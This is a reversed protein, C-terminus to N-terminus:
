APSYRARSKLNRLRRPSEVPAPQPLVSKISEAILGALEIMEAKEMHFEKLDISKVEADETV